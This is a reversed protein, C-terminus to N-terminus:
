LLQKATYRRICFCNTMTIGILGQLITNKSLGGVNMQLMMVKRVGAFQVQSITREKTTLSSILKGLRRPSQFIAFIFLQTHKLTDWRMGARPVCCFNYITAISQGENEVVSESAIEHRWNNVQPARRVVWDGYVPIIFDHIVCLVVRRCQLFHRFLSWKEKCANLQCMLCMLILYEWHLM